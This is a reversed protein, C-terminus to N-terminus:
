TGDVLYTSMADIACQSTGGTTHGFGDVTLLRANGLQRSVRRANVLPTAPDYTNGIVLVPTTTRASWPGAYRRSEPKPWTACQLADYIQGRGFTPYVKELGAAVLPYLSPSRAFAGDSCSVAHRTDESADYDDEPAAGGSNAVASETGDSGSPVAPSSPETSGTIVDYADQLQGALEAFAAVSYLAAGTASLVSDYTLPESGAVEVPGERLRDRIRDFKARPDGPSFACGDKAETCAALFGDLAKEAGAAIGPRDGFPSSTRQQPDLVGDLIVRDVRNSYVNLYTNGLLTGYSLGFYSIREEGLAQRILDMDRAVDLTTMHRLVPGANRECARTYDRESRLKEAVQEDTLPVLSEGRVKEYEADTDFCQIPDSLGVGRPDFGIVDYRRAADGVVQPIEATVKTGEVGPGGPNVLLVGLRTDLDEAPLRNLAITM